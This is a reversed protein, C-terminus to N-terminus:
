KVRKMVSGIPMDPDPPIWYLRYEGKYKWVGLSAYVEHNYVTTMGLPIYVEREFDPRESLEVFSKEAQEVLHEETAHVKVFIAAYKKETGGGHTVHRPSSEWTGILTKGTLEPRRKESLWPNTMDLTLNHFECTGDELLVLRTKRWDREYFFDFTTGYHYSEVAWEGTLEQMINPIDHNEVDPVLGMPLFGGPQLMSIFVLLFLGLIPIL